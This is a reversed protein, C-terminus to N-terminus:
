RSGTKKSGPMEIHLSVKGDDEYISCAPQIVGRTNEVTTEKESM